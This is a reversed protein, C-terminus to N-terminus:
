SAIAKCKSTPHPAQPTPPLGDPCTTIRSAKRRCLNARRRVGSDKKDRDGRYGEAKGRCDFPKVSIPDSFAMDIQGGMLDAMAAPSSKYPVYLIDIGAAQKLM